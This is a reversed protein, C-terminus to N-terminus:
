IGCFYWTYFEDDKPKTFIRIDLDDYHGEKDKFWDLDDPLTEILKILKEKNTM